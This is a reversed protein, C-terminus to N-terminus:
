VDFNKNLNARSSYARDNYFHGSAFSIIAKPGVKVSRLSYNYLYRKLRFIIQFSTVASSNNCPCILSQGDSLRIIQLVRVYGVLILNMRRVLIYGVLM